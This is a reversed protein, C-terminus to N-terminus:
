FHRERGVIMKLAEKKVGVELPTKLIHWGDVLINKSQTQHAIKFKSKRFVTKEPIEAGIILNDINKMRQKNQPWTLLELKGDQPDFLGHNRTNISNIMPHFNYIGVKINADAVHSFLERTFDPELAMYMLLNDMGMLYVSWMFAVRSHFNVAVKGKLKEVLLPLEGLRQPADPDPFEFTSLNTDITVPGKVPHSVMEPTPEYTCGWEDIWSGDPNTKASTWLSMDLETVTEGNLAVTIM